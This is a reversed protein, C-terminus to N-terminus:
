LHQLQRAQWHQGHVLLEWFRCLLSVTHLLISLRRAGFLCILELCGDADQATCPGESRVSDISSFMCLVYKWPLAIFNM